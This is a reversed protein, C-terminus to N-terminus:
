TEPCTATITVNTFVPVTGAPVRTLTCTPTGANASRVTGSVTLPGGARTVTVQYVQQAGAASPANVNISFTTAGTSWQYTTAGTGDCHAELTVPSSAAVVISGEHDATNPGALLVRCDPSQARAAGAAMGLLVCATVLLAKSM